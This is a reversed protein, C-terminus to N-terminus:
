QEINKTLRFVLQHSAKKSRDLNFGLRKYLKIAGDNDKMVVLSVKKIDLERAKEIAHTILKSGIGKGRAGPSAAVIFIYYEGKTGEPISLATTLEKIRKLYRWILKIGGAKLVQHIGVASYKDKGVPYASIFGLKENSIELIHCNKYHLRNPKGTWLRELVKTAIEESGAGYFREILGHGAEIIMEKAFDLDEPRADRIVYDKM